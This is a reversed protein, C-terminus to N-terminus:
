RCAQDLQNPIRCKEKRLTDAIKKCLKQITRIKVIFEVADTQEPMGSPAPTLVAKTHEVWNANFNVVRSASHFFGDQLSGGDVARFETM